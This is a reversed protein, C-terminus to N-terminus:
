DDKHQCGKINIEHKQFVPNGDKDNFPLEKPTKLTKVTAEFLKAKKTGNTQRLIFKFHNNGHKAFMKGAAKKAAATFNKTYHGGEDGFDSWVVKFNKTKVETEKSM